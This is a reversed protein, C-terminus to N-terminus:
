IEESEEDYLDDFYNDPDCCEYEFEAWKLYAQKLMKFEESETDNEDIHKEINHELIATISLTTSCDDNYTYAEGYKNEITVHINGDEKREISIKGFKLLEVIAKNLYLTESM